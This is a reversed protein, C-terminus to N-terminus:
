KEKKVMKAVTEAILKAGQENPHIDDPFYEGKGELAKYLDIIELEKSNAVEDIKPM